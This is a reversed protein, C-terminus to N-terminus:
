DYLHEIITGDMDIPVERIQWRDNLTRFFHNMKGVFTKNEQPNLAMITPGAGSLYVGLAGNEMAAEKIDYFGPILKARYPEHLRDSFAIPLKDWEGKEIASILLAVRSVNRIADEFSITDPLVARAKKTQLDFNPIIPCLTIGDAIKLKSFYIKDGDIAATTLGGFYQATINDPHGELEVALKYVQDVDWVTGALENAGIVGALICTASSGLGRSRPIESIVKLRIGKPTYGIQEFTKKMAYFVLNSEDHFDCPQGNFTTQSDEKFEFTNYLSIALGLADFGPGLNATSAPVTVRIM